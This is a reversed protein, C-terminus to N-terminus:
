RVFWRCAIFITKKMEKRHMVWEGDGLLSYVGWHVFLGFKAEKFWERGQLNEPAPQYDKQGQGFALISCLLSLAIATNYKM